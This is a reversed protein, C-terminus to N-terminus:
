HALRHSLFDTWSVSSKWKTILTFLTHARGEYQLETNCKWQNIVRVVLVYFHKGNTNQRLHLFRVIMNKTEHNTKQLRAWHSMFFSEEYHFAFSFPQMNRLKSTRTSIIKRLWETKYHKYIRDKTKKPETSSMSRAKQLSFFQKKNTGNATLPAAYVTCSHEEVISLIVKRIHCYFVFVIMGWMSIRTRLSQKCEGVRLACVCIEHWYILLYRIM